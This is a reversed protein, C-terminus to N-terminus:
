KMWLKPLLSFQRSFRRAIGIDRAMATEGPTGRKKDWMNDLEQSRQKAPVRGVKSDIAL